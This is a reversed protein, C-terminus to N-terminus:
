APNSFEALYHLLAAVHLVWTQVDIPGKNTAVIYIKEENIDIESNMKILELVASQVGSLALFATTTPKTSTRIWVANDFEKDGVQIEKEVLKKLKAGLGEHMLKTQIGTPNPAEALASIKRLSGDIEEEDGINIEGSDTRYSYGLHLGKATLRGPLYTARICIECIGLGSIVQVENKEVEENCLGCKM